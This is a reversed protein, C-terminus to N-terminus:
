IGCCVTLESVLMGREVSMSSFYLFSLIFYHNQPSNNADWLALISSNTVVFPHITSETVSASCTSVVTVFGSGVVVLQVAFFSPM